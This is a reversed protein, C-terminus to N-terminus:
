TEPGKRKRPCKVMDLPWFIPKICFGSFHHFHTLHTPHAVVPLIPSWPGSHCKGDLYVTTVWTPGSHGHLFTVQHPVDDSKKLYVLTRIKLFCCWIWFVKHILYFRRLAKILWLYDLDSVLSYLVIKHLFPQPLSARLFLLWCPSLRSGRHSLLWGKNKTPRQFSSFSGRSAQPTLILYPGFITTLKHESALLSVWCSAVLFSLHQFVYRLFM